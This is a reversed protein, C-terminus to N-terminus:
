KRAIFQSLFVLIAIILLLLGIVHKTMWSVLPVKGIDHNLKQHRAVVLMLAGLACSIVAVITQASYM